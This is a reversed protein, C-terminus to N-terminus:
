SSQFRFKGRFRGFLCGCLGDILIGIIQNTFTVGVPEYGLHDPLPDIVNGMGNRVRDFYAAFIDYPNTRVKVSKGVRGVVM